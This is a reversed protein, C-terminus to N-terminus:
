LLWEIPLFSLLWIAARRLFTTGPESEYRIVEGGRREIWLIGGDPGLQVEYTQAPVRAAFSTEVAQTLPPSEIVFGLETNLHISRPDFNFSGVFLREGDVAFTKAHLASGGVVRSGRPGSGEGLLARSGEAVVPGGGIGHLEYLRVGARLLPERQYAYGAHVVPVDTARLANTLIAVDVGDRALGSFIEVGADTPVFYGSVLRLNRRPQGIARSLTPWLLSERPVLGLAKAPDDSVMRVAAWTWPLTGERAEEIIPLTQVSALYAQAAPTNRAVAAANVIRALDEQRVAPLVRSAPYASASNWYRDFDASVDSVVPGVALADLDVFLGEDRAGFYEDGINRGGIITIRNDATFSKNHMRRNLRSFETLYGVWKPWRLVFPNFLRVEVNPLDDLAALPGDLGSTGNDDVLLRVRVGRGAAARIEDLLLSGSLDGRWIYYQLDLSRTASRALLVRAAFAAPGDDLLHVGSLGPQRVTAQGAGLGLPTDETDTLAASAPCPELPPLPYLLRLGVIAVLLLATGM